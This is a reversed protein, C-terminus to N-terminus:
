HLVPGVGSLAIVFLCTGMLDDGDACRASRELIFLMLVLMGFSVFIHVALALRRTRWTCVSELTRYFIYFYKKPNQKEIGLFCM